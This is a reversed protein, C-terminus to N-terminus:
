PHLPPEPVHFAMAEGSFPSDCPGNMGDTTGMVTLLIRQATKKSMKPTSVCSQLPIFTMGNYFNALPM